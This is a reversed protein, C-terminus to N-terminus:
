RLLSAVIGVGAAVLDGVIRTKDDSPSEPPLALLADALANVDISQRRAEASALERLTKSM